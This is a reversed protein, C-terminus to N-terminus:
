ETRWGPGQSILAANPLFRQLIDRIQQPYWLPLRVTGHLAIHLFGHFYITQMAHKKSKRTARWLESYSIGPAIWVSPVQKVQDCHGECQVQWKIANRKRCIFSQARPTSQLPCCPPLGPFCVQLACPPLHWAIYKEERLSPLCAINPTSFTTWLVFIFGTKLRYKDM